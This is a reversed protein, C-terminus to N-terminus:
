DVVYVMKKQIDYSQPRYDVITKGYCMTISRKSLTLSLHHRHNWKTITLKAAMILHKLVARVNPSFGHISLHLIALSPDPDIPYGIIDYQINYLIKQELIIKPIQMDM